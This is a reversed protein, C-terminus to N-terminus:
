PRGPSAVAFYRGAFKGVTIPTGFTRSLVPGRIVESLPGSAVVAGDALLLGHTFDAPIEEVHHTVLVMAPADPAAALNSLLGILQERAGLDLGASPEDLILIEPDPMLARALLVRKREGDSLTGFARDALGAVEFRELLWRAREVDVPDYSERWHGTMGYVSTLVADSVRERRPIADAVAPVVVGIRPRLEFVDVEGLRKGLLRASGSTPHDRASIVGVLTSKGAGNPGALM